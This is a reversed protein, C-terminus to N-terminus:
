VLFEHYRSAKDLLIHFFIGFYIAYSRNRRKFSKSKTTMDVMDLKSRMIERIPKIIASRFVIKERFYM